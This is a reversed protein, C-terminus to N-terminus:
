KASREWIVRILVLLGVGALLWYASRSGLNPLGSAEAVPAPRVAKNPGHLDAGSITGPSQSFM